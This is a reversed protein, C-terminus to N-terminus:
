DCSHLNWPYQNFPVYNFNIGSLHERPLRPAVPVLENSRCPRRLWGLLAQFEPRNVRTGNAKRVYGGPANQILNRWFINHRLNQNLFPVKKYTFLALFAVQVLSDYSAQLGGLENQPGNRRLNPSWSAMEFWSASFTVLQSLGVPWKKRPHGVPRFLQARSRNLGM